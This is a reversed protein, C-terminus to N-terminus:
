GGDTEREEVLAELEADQLQELLWGVSRGWWPAAPKLGTALELGLEAREAYLPVRERRIPEAAPDARGHPLWARSPESV